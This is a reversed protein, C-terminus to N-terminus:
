IFLSSGYLVAYLIFLLVPALALVFDIVGSITHSSYQQGKALTSVQIFLLWFVLFPPILGLFVAWNLVQDELVAKAFMLQYPLMLINGIIGTILGSEVKYIVLPAAFLFLIVSGGLAYLPFYNAFGNSFGLQFLVIFATLVATIIYISYVLYKKKALKM